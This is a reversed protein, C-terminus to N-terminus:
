DSVTVSGGYPTVVVVIVVAVCCVVLGLTAVAASVKPTVALLIIDGDSVPWIKGTTRSYAMVLVAVAGVDPTIPVVAVAAACCVSLPPIAVSSSETATIVLSVTDGNSVPEVRDTTGSAAADVVAVDVVNAAAAAVVATDIGVSVLCVKEPCTLTTEGSVVSAFECKVGEITPSGSASVVVFVAVVDLGAAVLVVAAMSASVILGVKDVFDPVFAVLLIADGDSVSEVNNSTGPVSVDVVAGSAVSGVNLTSLAVSVAVDAVVGVNVIASVGSAVILMFVVFCVSIVYESVLESRNETASRSVDATGNVTAPETSLVDLSIVDCDSMSAVGGRTGAAMNCM